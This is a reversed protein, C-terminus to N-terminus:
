WVKCCLLLPGQIGRYPRLMILRATSLHLPSSCCHQPCFCVVIHYPIREVWSFCQLFVASTGVSFPNNLTLKNIAVSLLSFVSVKIYVWMFHVKVWLHKQVKKHILMMHQFLLDQKRKFNLAIKGSLPKCSLHSFSLMTLPYLFCLTM